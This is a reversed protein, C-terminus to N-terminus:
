SPEAFRPGAGSSESTVGGLDPLKRRAHHFDEQVEVDGLVRRRLPSRLLHGQCFGNASRAIPLMRRSHKSWTM